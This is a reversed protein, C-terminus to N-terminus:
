GARDALVAYSLQGSLWEETDDWSWGRDAVFLRWSQHGLFFWLVDTARDRTMGPRLADLRDLRGAVTHLAERYARDARSLTDRATDELAAATVLVQVLAFHRENDLRVGHTLLSVVERPDSSAAVATLTREVVPDGIGGTILCALIAAKGGTSAYVTPVATGAERAIDAVTVKGYGQDVFLRLAADLVSARTDAAGQARRPARYARRQGPPQPNM